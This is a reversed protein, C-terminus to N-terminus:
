LPSQEAHKGFGAALVEGYVCCGPSPINWIREPYLPNSTPGAAGLWSVPM